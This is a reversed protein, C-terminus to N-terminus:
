FKLHRQSICLAQGKPTILLKDFWQMDHGGQQILLSTAEPM